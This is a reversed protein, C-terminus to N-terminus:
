KWKMVYEQTERNKFRLEKLSDSKHPKCSMSSKRRKLNKSNYTQYKLKKGELKGCTTIFANLTPRM